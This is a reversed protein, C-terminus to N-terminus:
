CRFWRQISSARRRLHSRSRSSSGIVNGSSGVWEEGQALAVSVEEDFPLAAITAGSGVLLPGLNDASFLGRTFNWGMVKAFQNLEPAEQSSAQAVDALLGPLEETPEHSEAQGGVTGVYAAIYL